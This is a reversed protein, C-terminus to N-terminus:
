MLSVLIEGTPQPELVIRRQKLKQMTEKSIFKESGAGDGLFRHHFDMGSHMSVEEFTLSKKSWYHLDDDFPVEPAIAFLEQLEPNVHLLKPRKNVPDQHKDTQLDLTSVDSKFVPTYGPSFGVASEKGKEKNVEKGKYKPLVGTPVKVFEEDEDSDDKIDNSKAILDSVVNKLDILEKIFTMRQEDDTIAAKQATILWKNLQQPFTEVINLHENLAEFVIENESTRHVPQINIEIDLKYSSPLKPASPPASTHADNFNLSPILIDLCANAQEISNKLKPLQETYEDLYKRYLANRFTSQTSLVSENTEDIVTREHEDEARSLISLLSILQPHQTKYKTWSEVLKERHLRKLGSLFTIHTQNSLVYERFEASNFLYEIISVMRDTERIEGTMKNLKATLRKILVPFCGKCLAKLQKREDNSLAEDSKLIKTIESTQRRELMIAAKSGGGGRIRIHAISGISRDCANLGGLRYKSVEM